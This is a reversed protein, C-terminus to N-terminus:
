RCRDLMAGDCPIAIQARCSSASCGGDALGIPPPWAPLYSMGTGIQVGTRYVTAVMLPGTRMMEDDSWVHLEILQEGGTLDTKHARLYNGNVDMTLTGDDEVHLMVNGDEVTQDSVSEFRAGAQPRFSITAHEIVNVDISMLRLAITFGEPPEPPPSGCGALAISLLLAIATRSRISDISM